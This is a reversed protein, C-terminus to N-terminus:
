RRRSFLAVLRSGWLSTLVLFLAWVLPLVNGLRAFLTPQKPAPIFGDLRDALGSQIAGRVIGNADVVASIGTTTSRLVPLGEEIARLRAQGLHQPPGWLGFWGDNSPNFLYDPRNSRDVVRGSFVIEYCIQIGARGFQRTDITAPGAGPAYDISGAVLRSFGLPELLNRLPLYEGYPVLHAKAYQEQIEGAGDILLVSNRASIARVSGNNAAFNLNVVGALLASSPGIISAIRRRAFAPDGGATASDYYPQPYDDELYDPLSSEPWLVLRPGERGPASLQAIRSFQREFNSPSHLEDQLLLPQVLAYKVETQQTELVSGAPFLMGGTVAAILILGWVRQRLRVASVILVAILLALGSLAYTGLWPLLLALGPREWGGLLMLGLPPWPYGTFVWSRMWETVIWAGAFLVGFALPGRSRGFFYAIAATIAPYFALYVCLLPVAIWGLFEPMQAQYTFATAIWNNAITLHMWGFLWGLVMASRWNQAHYLLAVFASLALLAIPWFGLPPYGVASVLGLLIAGSKPHRKILDVLSELTERM